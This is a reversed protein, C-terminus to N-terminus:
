RIGLISYISLDVRVLTLSLTLCCLGDPYLAEEVGCAVDSGCVEGEEEWVPYCGYCGDVAAVAVEVQWAVVRLCRYLITGM